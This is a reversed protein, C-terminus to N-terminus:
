SADDDGVDGEAQSPKGVPETPEDGGPEPTAGNPTTQSVSEEGVPVRDHGCGVSTPGARSTLRNDPGAAHTVPASFPSTGPGRPDRSM